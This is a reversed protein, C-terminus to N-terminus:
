GNVVEESPIGKTRIHQAVRERDQQSLQRLIQEGRQEELLEDIRHTVGLMEEKIAARQRQLELRRDILTQLEDAM